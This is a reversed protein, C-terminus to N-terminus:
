ANALHATAGEFLAVARETEDMGLPALREAAASGADLADALAARTGDGGHGVAHAKAERAFDLVARELRATAVPSAGQGLAATAAGALARLDTGLPSDPRIAEALAEGAARPAIGAPAALGGAPATASIPSLQDMM